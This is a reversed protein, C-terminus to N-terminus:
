GEGEKGFAALAAGFTHEYMVKTGNLTYESFEEWLEGRKEEAEEKSKAQHYMKAYDELMEIIVASFDDIRPVLKTIEDM